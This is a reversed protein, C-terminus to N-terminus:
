KDILDLNNIIAEICILDIKSDVEFSKWQPVIYPMTKEHFFSEKEIFSNSDSIYLSGDIYYLDEIDQRRYSKFSKGIYPSILGKENIRTDYVPHAYEVKSVSTISDASDRNNKLKELATDVDSSETLPSTPELLVVYDYFQNLDQLHLLAHKIVSNGTAEATAFNKPRMFPIEAGYKEAIDAIEKDDTSVICRDIYKSGLAIEIAWAILPKGGLPLINKRPLGKSGGRAPIISIVTKGDIM